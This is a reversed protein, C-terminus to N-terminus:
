LSCCCLIFECVSGSPCCGIGSAAAVREVADWVEVEGDWRREEGDGDGEWSRRLRKNVVYSECYYGTNCCWGSLGISGCGALGAPCTATQAASWGALTTMCYAPTLYATATTTTTVAAATIVQVITTTATPVSSTTSTAYITEVVVTAAAATTSAAVVIATTTTLLAAASNGTPLLAISNYQADAGALLSFLLLLLLPFHALRPRPCRM